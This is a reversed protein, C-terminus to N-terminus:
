DEPIFNFPAYGQDRVSLTVHETSLPGLVFVDPLDELTTSLTAAVLRLVDDLDREIRVADADLLVGRRYWPWGETPSSQRGVISPNSLRVAQMANSERVVRFSSTAIPSTM